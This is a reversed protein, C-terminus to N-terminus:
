RNATLINIQRTGSLAQRRHEGIHALIYERCLRRGELRSAPLRSTEDPAPAELTIPESMCRDGCNSAHQGAPREAAIRLEM